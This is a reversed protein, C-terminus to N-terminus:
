HAAEEAEEEGDEEEGDEAEEDGEEINEHGHHAGAPEEQEHGGEEATSGIIDGLGQGEPVPKPRVWIIPKTPPSGEGPTWEVMEVEQDAPPLQTLNLKHWFRRADWCLEGNFVSLRNRFTRANDGGSVSCMSGELLYGVNPDNADVWSGQIRDLLDQEFRLQASRQAQSIASRDRQKAKRQAMEIQRRPDGAALADGELDAVPTFPKFGKGKGKGKGRGAAGSGKAGGGFGVAPSCGGGYAWPAYHAAGFMTAAPPFPGPFGPFDFGAYGRQMLQAQMQAAQVAAM